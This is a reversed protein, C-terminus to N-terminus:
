WTRSPLTGFEEWCYLNHSLQILTNIIQVINIEVISLIKLKNVNTIKQILLRFIKRLGKKQLYYQKFLQICLIIEVM